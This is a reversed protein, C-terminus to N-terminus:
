KPRRIVLSRHLSPHTTSLNLHHVLYFGFMAFPGWLDCSRNVSVFIISSYYDWVVM